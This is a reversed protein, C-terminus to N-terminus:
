GSEWRPRTVVKTSRTASAYPASSAALRRDTTSARAEILLTASSPTSSSVRKGGRGPAHASIDPAHVRITRSRSLRGAYQTAPSRKTLPLVTKRMTPLERASKERCNSPFFREHSPCQQITNPCRTQSTDTNRVAYEVSAGGASVFKTSSAYPGPRPRSISGASARALAVPSAYPALYM